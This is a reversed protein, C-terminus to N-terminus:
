GSLKITTYEQTILPPCCSSPARGLPAQVSPARSPGTTWSPTSLPLNCHGTGSNHMHGQSFWEQSMEGWKGSIRGPSTSLYTLYSDFVEFGKSSLYQSM